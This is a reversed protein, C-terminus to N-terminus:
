QKNDSDSGSSRFAWLKNLVFNLPVSIILNVLPAIFKSMGLKIWLSSLLNTLIIGTFGYSVYTKLLAKLHSRQEGEGLTFVFRSNWYYSWLVSLFFAVMNGVIYDWWLDYPKMLFLVLVNLGYSIATNSVGILGFKIFQVLSGMTKDSVSIHLIGCVRRCIKEIM